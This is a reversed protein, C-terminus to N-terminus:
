GLIICETEEQHSLIERDKRISQSSFNFYSRHRQGIKVRLQYSKVM